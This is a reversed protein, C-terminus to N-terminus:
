LQGEQSGSGDEVDRGFGGAAALPNETYEGKFARGTSYNFDEERHEFIDSHSAESARRSPAGESSVMPNHTSDINENIFQQEAWTGGFNEHGGGGYMNGFSLEESARRGPETQRSLRLATAARARAAIVQPRDMRVGHKSHLKELRDSDKGRLNFKASGSENAFWKQEGGFRKADENQMWKEYPSLAVDSEKRRARRWYRLGMICCCCVLVGLGVMMFVRGSTGLSTFPDRAESLQNPVIYVTPGSTPQATPRASPRESPRSTPSTPESTPVTTPGATPQGTPAGTPWAM